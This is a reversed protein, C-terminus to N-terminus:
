WCSRSPAGASRSRRSAASRPRRVGELAAACTTSRRGRADLATAAAALANYVNYLGPLPLACSSRDRRAHAADVRSGKWGTSSWGSPSSRRARARRPRLEPLPLPRPPRPLRGRVRVAHGCRRCHKSDAAHQSSPCRWRTTRSASTSSAARPRPRPRGGAPRRREARLAAGGTRARRGARGLPRRDARARRLPRAPRPVPQRAPLARPDCSTPRGAAAM